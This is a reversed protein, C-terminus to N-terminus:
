NDIIECSVIVNGAAGGAVGAVGGAVGGIRDPTILQM